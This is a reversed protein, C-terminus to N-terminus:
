VESEIQNLDTDLEGIKIGYEAKVMAIDSEVLKSKEQQESKLVIIRSSLKDIDIEMEQSTLEILPDGAKVQQGPVVFVKKVLASKEANIRYEKSQAIGVSSNGSGKFFKASIYLMGLFLIAVVIYFWNASNRM